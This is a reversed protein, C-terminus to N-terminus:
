MTNRSWLFTKISVLAKWVFQIWLIKLREYFYDWEWLESSTRYKLHENYQMAIIKFIYNLFLIEM